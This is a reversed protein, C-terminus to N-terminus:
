YGGCCDQTIPETITSMQRVLFRLHLSTLCSAWSEVARLCHIESEWRPDPLGCDISKAVLSSQRVQWPM